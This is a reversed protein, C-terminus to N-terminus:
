KILNILDSYLKSQIESIQHNRKGCNWSKQEYERIKDPNNILYIISNSIDRKNNVIIAADNKLLYNISASKKHGVAFICKGKYFYDVVKTSFSLRAVLREKISFAETHILIDAIDQLEMVKEASIGGMLFVSGPINLSKNIRRTIPSMTYVYMEAVIKENNIKNLENGILQITKWRGHYINGTFLLKLPQNFKKDISNNKNFDYGKWLLRCEKNFYKEYEIKQNESIVYLYECLAVTKRIKYRQLLRDIWYLPSLSFQKLSYVDDWAYTLLPKKSYKKIFQIIDNVYMGTQLPAFIIDPNFDDIFTKLEKSKWNGLKWIIERGWFFIQWRKSRFIDYIRNGRDKFIEVSNNQFVRNGTPIKKNIMNVILNRETIQFYSSAVENQPNGSQLYVNAIEANIGDFINSYSNGLSNDNRWPVGTIVLIRM